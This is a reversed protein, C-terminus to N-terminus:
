STLYFYKMLVLSTSGPFAGTDTKVYNVLACQFESLVVGQLRDPNEINNNIYAEVGGRDWSNLYKETVTYTHSPKGHIRKVYDLVADTGYGLAYIHDIVSHYWEVSHDNKLKKVPLAVIEEITAPLGCFSNNSYQKYYLFKIFKYLYYTRILYKKYLNLDLKPQEPLLIFDKKLLSFDEIGYNKIEFIELAQAISEFSFFFSNISFAWISFNKFDSLDMSGSFGYILAIGLLCLATSLSGIIFYKVGSEVSFNSSKKFSALVYFVLSQLEIALYSTILDNVECLLFFGFISTLLVIYYEFTNLKYDQLYKTIFLLYLVCFVGVVLKATLALYDNIITDNFSVINFLHINMQQM